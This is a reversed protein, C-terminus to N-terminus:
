EGSVIISRRTEDEDVQRCEIFSNSIVYVNSSVPECKHHNFIVINNKTNLNNNDTIVDLSSKYAIGDYGLNKVYEAIYQTPIYDLTDDDAVVPKSFLESLDAFLNAKAESMKSKKDAMTFDLLTIESKITIIAVSVRAGLRPRVELVSLYSNDTCYLYPIYRYNARMDKTKSAPPVFSGNRDFGWFPKQLALKDESGIIRSRYLLDGSLLVREPNTSVDKLLELVRNDQPNRNKYQIEKIFSRLNASKM